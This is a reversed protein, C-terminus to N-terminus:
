LDRGILLSGKMFRLERCIDAFSPREKPEKRWCKKIMSALCPPCNSPLAPREDGLLKKKVSSPYLGIFPVEGTLIHFCVMGFSFVDSRFPLYEVSGDESDINNGAERIIEPAMWRTTGVNKTPNHLTISRERTKSIGFDAVKAHVFEVGERKERKVLINQTKLDRHLVRRRHLYDMGEAIQFMIDIVEDTPFPFGRQVQNKGDRKMREETLKALDEDMLEQVLSCKVGEKVYCLLRVISPHSLRTLISVEQDFDGPLSGKNEEGSTEEPLTKEAAPMGLWKAKYVVGFSGKGIEEGREVRGRYVGMSDLHSIDSVPNAVAARFREVLSVALEKQDEEVKSICESRLAAEAQRLLEVQDRFSLLVLDSKDPIPDKAKAAELDELLSTALQSVQLNSISESSLVSEVNKMLNVHGLLRRDQGESISTLERRLITGLMTRNRSKFSWLCLELGVDLSSVHEFVDILMSVAQIWEAKCCEQVFKKVDMALWFLFKFNRESASIQEPSSSNMFEVASKVVMELKSVLYACQGRNFQVERLFGTEFSFVRLGLWKVLSRYSGPEHMFRLPKSFSRSTMEEWQRLFETELKLCDQPTVETSFRRRRQTTIHLAMIGLFVLLM